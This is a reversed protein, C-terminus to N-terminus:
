SQQSSYASSTSNSTDNSTSATASDSDKRIEYDVFYECADGAESGEAAWQEVLPSLDYGDSAFRGEFCEVNLKVFAHVNLFQDMKERRLANSNSRKVLESCINVVITLAALAALGGILRLLATSATYFDAEVITDNQSYISQVELEVTLVTEGGV